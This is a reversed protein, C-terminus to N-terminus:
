TGLVVRVIERIDTDVFNLTIDGSQPTGADAAPPVPSPAPSSGRAEVVPLRNRDGPIESNIRPAAPQLAGPPQSPIQEPAPSVESCGLLIVSCIVILAGFSRGGAISRM